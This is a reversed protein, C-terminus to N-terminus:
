STLTFGDLKHHNRVVMIKKVLTNKKARRQLVDSESVLFWGSSMDGELCNQDFSLKWTLMSVDLFLTTCWEESEIAVTSRCACYCYKLYICRAVALCICVFSMSRTKELTELPQTLDFSLVVAPFFILVFLFCYLLSIYLLVLLLHHWQALMKLSWM